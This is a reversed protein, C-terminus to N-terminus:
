ASKVMNDEEVAHESDDELIFGYFGDGAVTGADAAQTILELSLEDGVELTVPDIDKFLVKGIATADPITLTGIVIEGSGSAITPRRNFELVALTTDAVVLTELAFMLRKIKCRKMVVYGGHVAASADIAEIGLVGTGRPMLYNSMDQNYAM